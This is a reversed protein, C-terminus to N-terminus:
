ESSWLFASVKKGVAIDNFVLKTKFNNATAIGFLIHVPLLHEERPHSFRASPADEWKVLRNERETESLNENILTDILWNNFEEAKQNSDDSSYFFERMNHFSLGSGIVLIDREMLEALAKGMNIHEQPNLNRKQSIQIVPINAEPYMLLLPVFVGHDYGRSNNKEALINHKSFLNIIEDALKPNGPASYKINYTEPPFGSYDYIMDPYDAGTVTPIREEWHASIVIIASPKRLKNPITKMFETLKAHSPDNLLPMPGGGHPLFLIQGQKKNMVMM